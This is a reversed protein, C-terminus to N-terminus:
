STPKWASPSAASAPAAHAGPAAPTRSGVRRWLRLLGNRADDFFTYFVPVVLLTLLTATSLGGILTLGFSKYSMGIDNPRQITLPIMGIITTLATMAIPRFRRDAATLLAERRALGRERLRNVYDILVIGNNVVVGVLLVVAVAGLFDIDRGALVHIWVVGIGALPITLLISLPLIFSEFLFGMLLYIFVVSLAAAFAMNLLEQNFAVQPSQGFSVGEPLDIMRQLADLTRRAEAAQEKKLELTIWESVRKNARFIGRPSVLMRPRTLAALPVFGGGPLPVQFAGLADVGERDAKEFRIRVPIERGEANYKPLASGRLAYGVLFAVIEPNVGIANARDRDLLLAMESPSTEESKRIGLVGPVGLLVPELDKAVQELQVPDDGELRLGYVEAGKAQRSRDERGYFLRIGPRKPLSKMIDEGIEKATLTTERDEKLWGEVRGWRTGHLTLYGKLDFEEKKAQMIKEVEAFYEALDEFGYEGSAEISINFSTRDEEQQEVFDIRKWGWWWTAAFGAALLLVLDLRHGLAWALGRGYARNLFGFTARYFRGLVGEVARHWARTLPREAGHRPLTLYVSLPIFVLAVFLSALLSVTVPLALRILFFQGEGEVLAVPVFVIVTTLTALTIALAIEGAGLVCAERRPLGDEHLRHINEAVVISNDVLMGVGIFLGLITLINLSQGAFYMVVLAMLLSLPISLTVIATLRLRRLFLFLVLGAMGGGLCGGQVLNMLSDVVVEGQNFIVEMHVHALRPNRTMRDLEAAIRRCVAVTNAEGEKLIYVAVARNGNVRAAWRREPEAYKVKAVDKLVLSSTLRRNEVEELTRYTAVSRLLLKRGGERVWGSAMTFNDGQLDRTIQYLNLGNAEVKQRDVEILIEKEMMGDVGVRAVGDLRQLPQVIERQVLDYYDLLSEDLVVGIVVVPIGSTEEKRIYVRDADEPLRAQARQVRDRVERYAVDMDVGQKFSLFVTAAGLRTFSNLNELGRVTSLEEELPLTIRDLVERSPANFWPVFVTLTRGTYGSPFIELPIRQMAVVGVVLISLFIVLVTIRRRLSFETLAGSMRSAQDPAPNM